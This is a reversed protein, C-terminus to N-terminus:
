FTQGSAFKKYNQYFESPTMRAIQEEGYFEQMKKLNVELSADNKEISQDVFSSDLVKDFAGTAAFVALQNMGGTKAKMDFQEAMVENFLDDITSDECEESKVSLVWDLMSQDKFGDAPLVFFQEATVEGSGDVPDVLQVLNNEIGDEGKDDNGLSILSQVKGVAVFYNKSAIPSVSVNFKM